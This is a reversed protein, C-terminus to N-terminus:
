RCHYLYKGPLAKKVYDSAFHGNIGHGDFVGFLWLNEMKSLDKLIVYSDQNVKTEKNANNGPRSKVAFCDVPNSLIKQKPSTISKTEDINIDRPSIPIKLASNHLLNKSEMPTKNSTEKSRKPGHTMM